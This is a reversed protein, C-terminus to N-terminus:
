NCKGTLGIKPSTVTNSFATSDVCYGYTTGPLQVSAAWKNSSAFCSVTNGIDQKIKNITTTFDSKTTCLGAYSNNSNYYIEGQVRMNGLDQIVVRAKSYNSADTQSITNNQGNILNSIDVFIDKIDRADTPRDIVFLKNYNDGIVNIKLSGIDNNDKDLLDSYSYYGHIYGDTGILVKFVSNKVPFEKIAQIENKIMDEYSSQYNINLNESIDKSIKILGDSYKDWDIKFYIANVLAGNGAVELKKDLVIFAGSKDVFDIIDNKINESIITSSSVNDIFPGSYSNIIDKSVYFWSSLYRKIIDPSIFSSTIAPLTQVSLYTKDAFSKYKLSFEQASTTSQLGVISYKLSGAINGDTEINKDSNEQIISSYDLKISVDNIKNVTQQVGVLPILDSFNNGVDKSTFEGSVSLQGSKIQNSSFAQITKIVAGGFTIQNAVYYGYGFYAGVIIVVALIPLLVIFLKKKAIPKNLPETKINLKEISIIPQAIFSKQFSSNAVPGNEPPKPVDNNIKTQINLVGEAVDKEDWGNSLLNSKIIDQPTGKRIEGQIYNLLDQTIM